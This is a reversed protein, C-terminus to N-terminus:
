LTPCHNVASPYKDNRVLITFRNSLGAQWEYRIFASILVNPQFM